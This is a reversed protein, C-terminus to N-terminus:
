GDDSFYVLSADDGVQSLPPLRQLKDPNRVAYVAHIRGDIVHPVLATTPRGDEYLIFGQEGNIETFWGVAGSPAQRSLGLFFAAVKEAGRIPRRAAAAKGGGDSWVTADPALLNLLGDMDGGGAANLFHETLRAPRKGSGAVSSPDKGTRELKRRARSVLQRTAAQSRDLVNALDAYEYSFVERLLFAAREAPSLKELMILFAMSISETLALSAAPGASGETLVPEPLWPGIYSERRVRASRLHDICLRTVI